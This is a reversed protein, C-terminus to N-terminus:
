ASSPLSAVAWACQHVFAVAEVGSKVYSEVCGLREEEKSRGQVLPILELRGGTLKYYTRVSAATVKALRVATLEAWKAFGMARKGSRWLKWEAKAYSVM